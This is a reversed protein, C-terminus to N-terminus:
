EITKFTEIIEDVEPTNNMNLLTIYKNEIQKVTLNTAAPYKNQYESTNNWVEIPLDYSQGGGYILVVANPWGYLNEADDLAQYSTPYSIQFGYQNNTYTQWGEPINSKKDIEFPTATPSPTDNQNNAKTPAPTTVVQTSKRQAQPIFIVALLIIVIVAPFLYLYKNM